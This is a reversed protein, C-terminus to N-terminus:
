ESGGSNAFYNVLIDLEENTLRDGCDVLMMTARSEYGGVIFARPDLISERIYTEADVGPVRDSADLPIATATSATTNSTSNKVSPFPRKM